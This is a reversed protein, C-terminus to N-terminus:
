GKVGIALTENIYHGVGDDDNMAVVVDTLSRLEEHANAVAVRKGGGQFLGLDNM